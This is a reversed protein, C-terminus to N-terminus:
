RRLVPEIGLKNLRNVYSGSGVRINRVTLYAINLRNAIKQDSYGENVMRFVQQIMDDTVEANNTYTVPEYGLKGLKDKYITNGSRINAITKPALDLETALMIDINNPYNEIVKDMIRCIVEDTASASTRKRVPELGLENLISGYYGSGTRVATVTGINKNILESIERDNLGENAMRIINYIDDNNTARPYKVPKLGLAVLKDMNNNGTRLNVIATKSVGYKEALEKDINKPFAKNIADFIAIIEENTLGAKKYLIPTLGLRELNDAYSEKGLRIYTITVPAVEYEKALENDINKPFAEKIRRHIEIIKDDGLCEANGRDYSAQVNDDHRLWQLHTLEDDGRNDTLHDVDYDYMDAFPFFTAMVLRHLMIEVSQGDVTQLKIKRYGADDEIDTRQYWVGDRFSFVKAYNTVYYYPQFVYGKKAYQNIQAIVEGFELFSNIDNVMYVDHIPNKKM